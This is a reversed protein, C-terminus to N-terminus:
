AEGEEHGLFGRQIPESMRSILENASDRVGKSGHPREHSSRFGTNAPFLDTPDCGLADALIYIQHVAVRHRGSEINAIASRTFEGSTM